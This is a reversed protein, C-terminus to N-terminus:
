MHISHLEKHHVNVYRKWIANKVISLKPRMGMEQLAVVRTISYKMVTQITADLEM